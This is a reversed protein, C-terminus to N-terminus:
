CQKRWVRVCCENKGSPHARPDRIFMYNEGLFFKNKNGGRSHEWTHVVALHLGQALQDLCRRIFELITALFPDQLTYCERNVKQVIQPSGLVEFKSDM